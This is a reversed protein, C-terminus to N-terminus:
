ETMNKYGISEFYEKYGNVACSTSSTFWGSHSLWFKRESDKVLCITNGHYHFTRTAGEVYKWDGTKDDQYSLRLHNDPIYWCVKHNGVVKVAKDNTANVLREVYKRM